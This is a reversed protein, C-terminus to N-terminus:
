ETLSPKPVRRVDKSYKFAPENLWEMVHLFTSDDESLSAISYEPRYEPILVGNGPNEVFSYPKDDLIITNALSMKPHTQTMLQLPKTHISDGEYTTPKCHARTFIRQPYRDGFIQACISEVYNPTGASWVCVVGFNDFCFNLFTDLHPRRIGWMRGGRGQGEDVDFAYLRSRLPYTEPHTLLKLRGMTGVSEESSHVLTEDLDLVICKDKLGGSKRFWM